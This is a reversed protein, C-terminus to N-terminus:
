FAYFNTRVRTHWENMKSTIETYVLYSSQQLIQGCSRVTEKSTAVNLLIVRTKVCTLMYIHIDNLNAAISTPSSKKELVIEAYEM